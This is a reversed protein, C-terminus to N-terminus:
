NILQRCTECSDDQKNNPFLKFFYDFQFTVIERFSKLKRSEINTIRHYIIYLLWEILVCVQDVEKSTIYKLVKIISNFHKNDSLDLEIFRHKFYNHVYRRNRTSSTSHCNKYNPRYDLIKDGVKEENMSSLDKYYALCFIHTYKDLYAYSFPIYDFSIFYKIVKIDYETLEKNNYKKLLNKNRTKTGIYNLQDNLRTLKNVIKIIIEMPLKDM